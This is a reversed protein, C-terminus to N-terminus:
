DIGSALIHTIILHFPYSHLLLPFTDEIVPRNCNLLVPLMSAALLVFISGSPEPVSTITELQHPM